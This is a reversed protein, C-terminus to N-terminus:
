SIMEMKNQMLNQIKFKKLNPHAPNYTRKHFLILIDNILVDIFRYTDKAKFYSCYTPSDM